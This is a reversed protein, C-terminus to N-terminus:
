RRSAARKAIDAAIAPTRRLGRSARAAVAQGSGACMAYATVNASTTSASNDVVVIWGTRDSNPHNSFVEGSDTFYGGSVVRQGPPCALVGGDIAGPALTLSGSTANLASLASPGAPGEPGSPGAPGAPGTLGTLGRDGPDGKVSGRFDAPTLSKNKVDRGTITSDKIQSSTILGAAVAGGTCSFVLAVVAVVMSPSIRRM